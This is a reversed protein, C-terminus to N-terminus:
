RGSGLVAGAPAGIGGGAAVRPGPRRSRAVVAAVGAAVLLLSIVQALSVAGFFRDDKARFFEVAFRSAGAMALWAFFLRGRGLLHPRLAVLAALVVMSLAAEYLQTPHVALVTADAIEAPVDVGFARLNGATSPPAGLPFAVGWVSGTPRGYDDGVFFCGVRGIAYGLALAPALADAVAPVPLKLRRVRWLVALAGGLLGGYWVLGARALMAQGPDALTQPLYLFLYYVKAGLIGAVAAYVALDWAHEGELGARQLERSAYWAGALFCLAISVGFSTVQFGGVQLLVPHMATRLPNRPSRAGALPRAAGTPSRFV